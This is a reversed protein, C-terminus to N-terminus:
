STVVDSCKNLQTMFGAIAGFDDKLSLNSDTDKPIQIM